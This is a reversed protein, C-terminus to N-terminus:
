SEKNAKNDLCYVVSTLLAQLVGLTQTMPAELLGVFQARMEDLTPLKSVQEFEETSCKKGEFHGGLVKIKKANSKKFNYLAKTTAVFSEDSVILGVHGELESLEYGLDLEESAKMFVRKKMAHFNGGAQAIDERFQAFDNASIGSYSTLIFGVEPHISGKLEDLLLQKEEIM